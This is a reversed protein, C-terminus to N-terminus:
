QQFFREAARRPCRKAKKVRLFRIVKGSQSTHFSMLRVATKEIERTANTLFLSMKKLPRTFSNVLQCTSSYVLLRTSLNVLQCTSSNILLRVGM